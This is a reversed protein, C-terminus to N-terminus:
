KVACKHLEAVHKRSQAAEDGMLASAIRLLVDAGFENLALNVAVCVLRCNEAEYGKTNDIRDISPAWMAKRQGELRQTSFVIGSVECRGAARSVISEFAERSMISYGFKRSRSAASYYAKM